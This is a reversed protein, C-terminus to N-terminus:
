STPGQSEAWELVRERGWTWSYMICSRVYRRGMAKNGLSMIARDLIIQIWHSARGRQVDIHHLRLLYWDQELCQKICEEDAEQQRELTGEPYGSEEFHMPGDVQIIVRLKPICFDVEGKFKFLPRCHPVFVHEQFEQLLVSMVVKEVESMHEPPTCILCAVKGEKVARQFGECTMYRFHLCSSCHFFWRQPGKYDVEDVDAGGNLEKAFCKRFAFPGEDQREEQKRKRGKKQLSCDTPARRQGDGATLEAADHFSDFLSSDTPLAFQM